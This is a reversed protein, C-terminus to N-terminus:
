NLRTFMFVLKSTQDKGIRVTMGPMKAEKPLALEIANGLTLIAKDWKNSGTAIDVGSVILGIVLKAPIATASICIVNTKGFGAVNKAGWAEWDVKNFAKKMRDLTLHELLIDLTGPAAKINKTSLPPIAKREEGKVYEGGIFFFYTKPQEVKNDPLFCLQYFGGERPTGIKIRKTGGIEVSQSQRVFDNEIGIDGSATVTAYITDGVAYISKDFSVELALSVPQWTIYALATFVLKWISKPTKVCGNGGSFIM